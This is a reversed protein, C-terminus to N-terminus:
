PEGCRRTPATRPPPVRGPDPRRLLDAALALRWSALLAIPPEGVLDNFRRALSARSVGAASALGAITWRHAPDGYILHLAPGVM